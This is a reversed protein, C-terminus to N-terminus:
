PLVKETKRVKATDTNRKFLVKCSQLFYRFPILLLVSALFVCILPVAPFWVAATFCCALYFLIRTGARLLMAPGDRYSFQRFVASNWLLSLLLSAACICPLLWWVHSYGLFITELLVAAGCLVASVVSARCSFFLSRYIRVTDRVPHFHSSGNEEFYVSPIRITEFPIKQKDAHCLVNMEYDYRDGKVQLLWDIHEVSFGRLGSQNDRLYRGMLLTYVWRSLDNGARSRRPIKGSFDRMTVVMSAGERLADRVRLIEPVPHQGDADATIFHACNPFLERLRSLGYKLAAGKGRNVPLRLVAAYQEAKQFITKYDDGSGDDVVCLLFGHCRLQKLLDLLRAEPQYAPILVVDM